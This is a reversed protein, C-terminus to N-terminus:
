KVSAVRQRFVKFLHTPIDTGQDKSILEKFLSTLSTWAVTTDVKSNAHNLKRVQENLKLAEEEHGMAFEATVKTKIISNHGNTRLWHLGGDQTEKPLTVRLDEKISVDLGTSTRFREMKAKEMLEPMVTWALYQLREKAAAVEGEKEAVENEAAQVADAVTSIQTLLDETPADDDKFASYDYNAATM